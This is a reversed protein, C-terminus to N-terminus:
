VYNVTLAAPLVLQAKTRVRPLLQVLSTSILNVGVSCSIELTSSQRSFFISQTTTLSSIFM